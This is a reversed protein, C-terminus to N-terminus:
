EWTASPRLSDIEDAKGTVNGINVAQAVGSGSPDGDKFPECGLYTCHHLDVSSFSGSREIMSVVRASGEM